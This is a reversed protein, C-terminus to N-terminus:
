IRGDVISTSIYSNGDPCLWPDKLISISKGNSVM